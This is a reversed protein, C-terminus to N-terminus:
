RIFVVSVDNASAAAGGGTVVQIRCASSTKTTPTGASTGSKYGVAFPAAPGVTTQAIQAMMAYNGDALAVTFNVTYDGNGNRTVSTVNNSGNITCAAGTDTFDVWAKVYNTVTPIAAIAATTFATSAAQTTNTGPAATPVTPTGTLAPSALPAYTAAVSASSILTGTTPLTVNTAGSSTLTISNAGSTVLSSGDALTLTAASAPATVTVKNITTATVTALTSAGTASLTTFHGALPTGAGIVTNDLGNGNFGGVRVGSSAVDTAGSASSYIGTTIDGILNVGVSMVTGAPYSLGVAFPIRATATQQGDKTICTSLGTAFGDSDGDMRSATINIGNNKDNVWNYPRNFTGTGNFPM